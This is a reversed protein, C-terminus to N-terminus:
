KTATTFSMRFVYRIFEKVQENAANYERRFNELATKGQAAIDHVADPIKGSELYDLIDSIGGIGKNIHPGITRALEAIQEAVASKANIYKEEAASTATDQQTKLIQAAVHRVNTALQAGLMPQREAEGASITLQNALNGLNYGLARTKYETDLMTAATQADALRAQATERAVIADTSKTENELRARTAILSGAQEVSRGLDKMPNELTTTAGPPTSAGGMKGAALIPNLGAKKMDAMMRQYASNSMREQFDMQQNVMAQNAQNTLVTGVLGLGGSAASAGVMATLPDIPM